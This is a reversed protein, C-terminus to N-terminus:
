AKTCDISNHHDGGKSHPITNPKGSWMEKHPNCLADGNWQGVLDCETRQCQRCLACVAPRTSVRKTTPFQRCTNCPHRKGAIVERCVRNMHKITPMSSLCQASSLHNDSRELARRICPGKHRMNRQPLCHCASDSSLASTAAAVETRVLTSVRSTIDHLNLLLQQANTKSTGSQNSLWQIIINGVRKFTPNGWEMSGRPRMGNTSM